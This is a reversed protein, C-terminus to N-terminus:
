GGLAFSYQPIPLGRRKFEAEIAALANAYNYGYCIRHYERLKADGCAKVNEKRTGNEFAKMKDYPSLNSAECLGGGEGGGTSEGGAAEGGADGETAAGTDTDVGAELEANIAEAAEEADDEIDTGMHKNFMKDDHCPFGMTNTVFYGNATKVQHKKKRKKAETLVADDM